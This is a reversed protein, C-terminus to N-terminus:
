KGLTASCLKAQKAFFPINNTWSRNRKKMPPMIKAVGYSANDKCSGVGAREYFLSTIPAYHLLQLVLQGLKNLVLSDM